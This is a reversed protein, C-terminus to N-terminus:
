RRESKLKQKTVETAIKLKKYDERAEKLMSESAKLLIIYHELIAKNEKDLEDLEKIAQDPTCCGMSKDAEGILKELVERRKDM